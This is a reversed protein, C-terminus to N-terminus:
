LGTSFADIQTERVSRFYADQILHIQFRGQQLDDRSHIFIIPSIHNKEPYRWIDQALAVVLDFFCDHFDNFPTASVTAM